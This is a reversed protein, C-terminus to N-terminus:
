RKNRWVSDLLRTCEDATLARRRRRRDNEVHIATIIGEFPNRTARGTSVLFKGWGLAHRAFHKRTQASLKEERQRKALWSEVVAANADALTAINCGNVMKTLRAMVITVHNSSCGKDRLSNEYAVLHELIPTKRSRDLSSPCYGLEAQHEMELAKRLAIRKDSTRLSVRRGALRMYWWRVKKTQGTRKDRYTPKFIEPM